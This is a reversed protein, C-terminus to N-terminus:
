DRKYRGPRTILQNKNLVTVQIVLIFCLTFKESFFFDLLVREPSNSVIFIAPFTDTMGSGLSTKWEPGGQTHINDCQQLLGHDDFIYCTRASM